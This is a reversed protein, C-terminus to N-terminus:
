DRSISVRLSPGLMRVAELTTGFRAIGDHLPCSNFVGKHQEATLKGDFVMM